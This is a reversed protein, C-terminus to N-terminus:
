SYLLLHRFSSSFVENTKHWSRATYYNNMMKSFWDIVVKIHVSIMCWEDEWIGGGRDVNPQATYVMVLPRLKTDAPLLLLGSLLAVWHAAASVISRKEKREGRVM